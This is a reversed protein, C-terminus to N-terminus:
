VIMEKTKNRNVKNTETMIFRQVFFIGKPIEYKQLSKLKSINKQFTDLDFENKNGEIILILKEGLKEDDFSSVFFNERILLQIKKEIQEPILKIGGSNIINDYRGLWKFETDSVLEVIDNTVITKESIKSADVVLCNREDRSLIVDPLTQYLDNEFTLGSAKNLPSVAIHTVTETMGYTAFIKTPLDLILSKTNDGVKGGGVILKEIKNLVKWSNFLQLPIMASFNYQKTVHALPKSTPEAVDVHWGLILSRILMMKGAIYEIPLCLLASTKPKLDFYIGTAVASNFMHKKRVSISKPKGTSGSTKMFMFDSSDFWNELFSFMKYSITKAYDLLDDVSDFVKENLRFDRHFM